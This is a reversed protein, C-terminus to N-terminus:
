CLSRRCLQQSPVPHQPCTSLYEPLMALPAHGSCPAQQQQQKEPTEMRSTSRVAGPTIPADFPLLNNHTPTSMAAKKLLNSSKKSRIPSMLGAATVASLKQLFLWSLQMLVMGAADGDLASSRRKRPSLFTQLSPLQM